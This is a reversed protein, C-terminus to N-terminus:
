KAWLFWVNEKMDNAKLPLFSIVVFIDRELVKKCRLDLGNLTEKINKKQKNQAEHMSPLQDQNM